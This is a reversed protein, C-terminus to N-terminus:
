FRGCLVLGAGHAGGHPVVEARIAPTSWSSSPAPTSWSAPTTSWSSSPSSEEGADPDLAPWRSSSAQSPDSTTARHRRCSSAAYGRSRRGTSAWVWARAAVGLEARDSAPELELAEDVIRAVAVDVLEALEAPTRSDLDLAVGHATRFSSEM